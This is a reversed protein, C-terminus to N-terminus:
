AQLRRRAVSPNPGPTQAAVDDKLFDPTVWFSKQFEPKMGLAVKEEFYREDRRFERELKKLRPPAMNVRQFDELLAPGNRPVGQEIAKASAAIAMANFERVLRATPLSPFTSVEKDGIKLTEKINTYMFFSHAEEHEEYSVRHVSPNEKDQSVSRATPTGIEPVIVLSNGIEEATMAAGEKREPYNFKSLINTMMDDRRVTVFHTLTKETEPVLSTPGVDLVVGCQVISEIQDDTLGTKKLENVVSIETQRILSTGYSYGVLTLRSFYNRLDNLAVEFAPTGPVRSLEKMLGAPLFITHALEVAAASIKGEKDFLYGDHVKEDWESPTEEQIYFAQANECGECGLKRLMDKLVAGNAYGALNFLGGVFLYIPGSIDKFGLGNAPLKNGQTDFINYIM